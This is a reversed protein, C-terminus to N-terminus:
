AEFWYIRPLTLTVLSGDGGEIMMMFQYLGEYLHPFMLIEDHRSM